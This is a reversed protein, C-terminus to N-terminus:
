FDEIRVELKVGIIRFEDFHSNVFSLIYKLKSSKGNKEIYRSIYKDTYPSLFISQLIDM